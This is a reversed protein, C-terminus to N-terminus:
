LLYRPGNCFDETFLHACQHLITDQGLWYFYAGGWCAVEQFVAYEQCQEEMVYEPTPPPIIDAQTPLALGVLALLLVPMLLKTTTKM